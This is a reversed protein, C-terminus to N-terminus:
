TTLQQSTGQKSYICKHRFTCTNRKKLEMYGNVQHQMQQITLPHTTIKDWTKISHTQMSFYMVAYKKEKGIWQGLRGSMKIHVKDTQLNNDQGM